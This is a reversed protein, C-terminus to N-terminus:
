CLITYSCIVDLLLMLLDSANIPMSYVCQKSTIRYYSCNYYSSNSISYSNGCTSNCYSSCSSWICHSSLQCNSLLLVTIYFIGLIRSATRASPIIDMSNYDSLFIGIAFAVFSLMVISASIYAAPDVVFTIFKTWVSISQTRVECDALQKIFSYVQYFWYKHPM